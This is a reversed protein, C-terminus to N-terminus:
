DAPTFGYKRWEADFDDELLDLVAQADEARHSNTVVAGLIENPFSAAGDIDIAEVDDSSAADTSYVLGADAQGSAVKGLVDAVQSELSLPNVHLGKSELIKQSLEGCPVQADCLVLRTSEDLDSISKIGAPNDKPVVLTMENTALVVPEKVEGRDVATQMTAASATILLDAPAGDHLQQVLGSSGGNNFAMDIDSRATLNENIVRTSSAAFISLPENEADGACGTLTLVAVLFPIILRRM